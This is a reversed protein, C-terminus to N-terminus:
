INEMEIEYTYSDGFKMSYWFANGIKNDCSLPVVRDMLNSKRLLVMSNDQLTEIYDKFQDESNKEPDYAIKGSFTFGSKTFRIVKMIYVIKKKKKAFLKKFCM